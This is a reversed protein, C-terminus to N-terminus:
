RNRGLYRIRNNTDLVTKEGFIDHTNQWRSQLPVPSDTALSLHRLQGSYYYVNNSLQNELSVEDYNIEQVMYALEYPDKNKCSVALMEHLSSPMLYLDDGLKETLEHLVDDYLISAAGYFKESNSVIYMRYEEPIKMLMEQIENETRGNEKLMSGVVPNMDEIVPPYFKKTNQVALTYLEEEGIKLYEQLTKTVLGIEDPGFRFRYLIALDQYEKYPVTKLLERNSNRNVLCLFVNERIFDPTIEKKEIQTEAQTMLAAAEELLEDMPRGQRYQEYMPNLYLTVAYPQDTKIYMEDLVQNIKNVTRIKVSGNVYSEPLYDKIHDAIVSKFEEYNFM